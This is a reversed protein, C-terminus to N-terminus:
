GGRRSRDGSQGLRGAAGGGFRDRIADLAGDVPSGQPGQDFLGGQRPEDAAALDAGTVGLLRVPRRDPRAELFLARATGYLVEDSASPPDLKRQRSHTEFPPHRLKLRVTSAVLGRHRLRRGVDESLALLVDLCAAEDRLDDQFTTERGVSKPLGGTVVPREDEGRSLAALHAGSREGLVRRLVDDGVRQVDGITRCGLSALRKQTAAGAGWLRSTPLPALFAGEGGVPVVTLGDPKDLDSAVKAVFKNSAVGVSVTLGTEEFVRRRIAEGISPGDGFLRRSGSVDLFAEDLSLPEVEDTFAEFVERVQASVATYAEMRTTLFVAHPCLKRARETPLASHVGFIRAEYSATSVVGRRGLGGVVVPKGRLSPDDRQEIAAYFADMDAHLITRQNGVSAM